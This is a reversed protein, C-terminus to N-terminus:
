IRMAYDMPTPPPPTIFTAILEEKLKVGDQVRHPYPPKYSGGSYSTLRYWYISAPKM